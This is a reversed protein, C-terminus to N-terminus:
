SFTISSISFHEITNILSMQHHDNHLKNYFHLCLLLRQKFYIGYNTFYEAHRRNDTTSILWVQSWINKPVVTESQIVFPLRMSDVLHVSYFYCLLQVESDWCLRKLSKVRALLRKVWMVNITQVFRLKQGLPYSYETSWKRASTDCLTPWFLSCKDHWINAVILRIVTM